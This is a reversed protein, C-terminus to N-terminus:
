SDFWFVLRPEWGRTKMKTMLDFVPRLMSEVQGYEEEYTGVGHEEDVWAKERQKQQEDLKMWFRVDELDGYSISHDGSDHWKLQVATSIDEPEGKPTGYDRRRIGRVRWTALVLGNPLRPPRGRVGALLAFLGYDRGSLTDEFALQWDKQGPKKIEICDHIDCGM